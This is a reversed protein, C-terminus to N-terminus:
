RFSDSTATLSLIMMLLFRPFLSLSLSCFLFFNVEQCTYAQAYVSVTKKLSKLSFTGWSGIIGNKFGWFISEVNKKKDQLRPNTHDHQWLFIFFFEYNIYLLLLQHMLLTVFVNRNNFHFHNKFNKWLINFIFKISTDSIGFADSIEKVM